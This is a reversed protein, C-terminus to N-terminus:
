RSTMTKVAQQVAGVLSPTQVGKVPEWALIRRSCDDLALAVWCHGWDPVLFRTAASQCPENPRNTRRRWQQSSAEPGTRLLRGSTFSGVLPFLAQRLLCGTTSASTSGKKDVAWEGSGRSSGLM